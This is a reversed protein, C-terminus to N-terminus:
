EYNEDRVRSIRRESNRTRLSKSLIEATLMTMAIGIDVTAREHSQTDVM